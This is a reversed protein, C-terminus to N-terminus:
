YKSVGSFMPNFNWKNNKNTWWSKNVDVTIAQDPCSVECVGCDTCREEFKPFPLLVGKKNSKPSIAYVNKYCMLVCIHCGKCLNENIEIM